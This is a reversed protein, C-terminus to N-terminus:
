GSTGPAPESAGEPDQAVEPSIVAASPCLRLLACLSPPPLFLASPACPMSDGHAALCPQASLPHSYPGSRPGQRRGPLRRGEAMGVFPGSLLLLTEADPCFNRQRKRVFSCRGPRALELLLWPYPASAIGHCKDLGVLWCM